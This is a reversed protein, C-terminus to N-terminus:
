IVGRRYDNYKKRRLNILLNKKKTVKLLIAM